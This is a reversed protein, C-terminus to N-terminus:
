FPLPPVLLTRLPRTSFLATTVKANVEGRDAREPRYRKSGRNIRRIPSLGRTGGRAVSIVWQAHVLRFPSSLSTRMRLAVM